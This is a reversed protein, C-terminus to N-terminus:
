QYFEWDTFNKNKQKQGIIIKIISIHHGNTFILQVLISYKQLYSIPKTFNQGDFNEAIYVTNCSYLTSHPPIQLQLTYVYESIMNHSESTAVTLVCKM